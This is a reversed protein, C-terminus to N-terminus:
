GARIKCCYSAGVASEDYEPHCYEHVYGDDTCVAHDIDWFDGTCIACTPNQKQVRRSLAGYLM